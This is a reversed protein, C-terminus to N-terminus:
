LAYKAAVTKPPAQLSFYAVYSSDSGGGKSEAAALWERYNPISNKSQM